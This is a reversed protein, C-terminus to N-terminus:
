GTTEDDEEGPTEAVIARWSLVLERSPCSPCVGNALRSARAAGSGGFEQTLLLFGLQEGTMREQCAPCYSSLGANLVRTYTDSSIGAGACGGCLRDSYFYKLEGIDIRCDAPEERVVREAFEAKSVWHPFSERLAQDASRVVRERVMGGGALIALGLIGVRIADEFSRGSILMVISGVVGMWALVIFIGGLIELGERRKSDM